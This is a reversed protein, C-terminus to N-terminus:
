QFFIYCYFHSRAFVCYNHGFRFYYEISNVQLSSSIDLHYKDICGKRQCRDSIHPLMQSRYTQQLKRRIQQLIHPWKQFVSNGSKALCYEYFRNLDTLWYKLTQTLNLFCQLTQVLAKLILFNLQIHLLKSKIKCLTSYRDFHMSLYELFFHHGGTPHFIQLCLLSLMTTLHVVSQLHAMHLSSQQLNKCIAHYKTCQFNGNCRHSVVQYQM